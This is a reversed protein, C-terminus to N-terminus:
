PRLQYTEWGEDQEYLMERLAAIANANIRSVWSTSVGMAQGISTMSEERIHYRVLVERETESLREVAANLAANLEKKQVSVSQAPPIASSVRELEANHLLCITVCEGVTHSIREVQDAFSRPRPAAAYAQARSEMHDNIAVSDRIQIATGRMAWGTKRLGDYMAGRIRYYAYSSFTVGARPRFRSYAELLGQFGWALLDDFDVRSHIQRSLEHGTATVLATYKEVLEDPSLRRTRAALHAREVTLPAEVSADDSPHKTM